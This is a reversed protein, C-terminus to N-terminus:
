RLSVAAAPISGCYSAGPPAQRLPRAACRARGRHRRRRAVLWGPRLSAPDTWDIDFQSQLVRTFPAHFVISLGITEGVLTLAAVVVSLALLMWAPPEDRTKRFKVLLRYGIMWAFVAAVFTPM